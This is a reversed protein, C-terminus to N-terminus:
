IQIVVIQPHNKSSEKEKEVTQNKKKKVISM